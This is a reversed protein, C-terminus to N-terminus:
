KYLKHENEWMEAATTKGTPQFKQEAIEDRRTHISDAREAFQM